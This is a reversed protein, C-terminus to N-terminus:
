SFANEPSRTKIEELYEHLNDSYLFIWKTIVYFKQSFWCKKDGPVCVYTTKINGTDLGKCSYLSRTTM